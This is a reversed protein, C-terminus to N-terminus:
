SRMQLAFVFDDRNYELKKENLLQTQRFCFQAAASANEDGQQRLYNVAEDLASFCDIAEGRLFPVNVRSLRCYCESARTAVAIYVAFKPVPGDRERSVVALETSTMYSTADGYRAALQSECNDFDLKDQERFEPLEDPQENRQVFSNDSRPKAASAPVCSQPVEAFVTPPEAPVLTGGPAVKTAFGTRWHKYCVVKNSTWQFDKNPLNSIWRQRDEENTPFRYVSGNSGNAYNTNCGYVCCKRPM